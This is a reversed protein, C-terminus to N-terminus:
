PDIEALSRRIEVGRPDIPDSIEALLGLYISRAQQLDGLRAAKRAESMRRAFLSRRASTIERELLVVREPIPTGAMRYAAIGKRILEGAQDLRGLDSGGERYIRAASDTNM